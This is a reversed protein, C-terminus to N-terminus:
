QADCQFARGFWEESIGGSMLGEILVNSTGAEIMALACEYQEQQIMGRQFLDELKEQATNMRARNLTLPIGATMKGQIMPNQPNGAKRATESVQYKVFNWIEDVDVVGDYNKDAKGKLGDLLYYTFVGHEYQELELSLQKGDSASIVVRGTGSFKELPIEAHISKTRDRRNVTAASYCSDLFTILRQSEIRALMDYIENNSLATSYLDDIDANHTVWYFEERESAGHGSYYIIVTDEQKAQRSLWSGIERKINQYTADQNLLLKVHDPVVGGIEPDTLLDYLGQADNVTFRLDPIREDQYDGIGIIVAYVEGPPLIGPGPVVDFDTPSNGTPSPILDISKAEMEKIMELCQEVERKPASGRKQAEQCYEQAADLDNVALYAQGLRLYPYYELFIVGYKRKHSSPEPDKKIAQQLLEIARTWEEKAMAKEADEYYEYWEQAWVSSGFNLLSVCCLVVCVKLCTRHVSRM